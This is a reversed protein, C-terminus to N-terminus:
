IFGHLLSSSIQWKATNKLTIMFRGLATSATNIWVNATAVARQINIFAQEGKIGAGLLNASLTSLSQGSAKLSSNLKSLDLNGTKTNFANTLHFQLQKASSVATQMEASLKTGIPIPTAAISSISQQLNRLNTIASTVDANFQLNIGLTKNIM